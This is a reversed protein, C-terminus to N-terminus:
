IIIIVRAPREVVLRHERAVADEGSRDGGDDVEVVLLVLAATM